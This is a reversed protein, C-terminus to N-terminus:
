EIPKVYPTGKKITNGFIGLLKGSSYFLKARNKYLNRYYQQKEKYDKFELM